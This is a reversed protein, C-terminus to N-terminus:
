LMNLMLKLDISNAIYLTQKNPFSKNEVYNLLEYASPM